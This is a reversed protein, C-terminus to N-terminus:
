QAGGAGCTSSQPDGHRQGAGGATSSAGRSREPTSGTMTKEAANEPSETHSGEVETDKETATEPKVGLLARLQQRQGEAGPLRLPNNLPGEGEPDPAAPDTQAVVDPPDTATRLLGDCPPEEKGTHSSGPIKDQIRCTGSDHIGRAAHPFLIALGMPCGNSSRNRCNSRIIASTLSVEEENHKREGRPSYM